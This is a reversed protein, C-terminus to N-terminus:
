CAVFHLAIEVLTYLIATLWPFYRDSVRLCVSSYLNQLKLSALPPPWVDSM